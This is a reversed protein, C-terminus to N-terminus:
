YFSVTVSNTTDFTKKDGSTGLKCNSATRQLSYADDGYVSIELNDDTKMMKYKELDGNEYEVGTTTITLKCYNSPIILIQIHCQTIM